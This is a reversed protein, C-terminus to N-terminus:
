WEYCIEEDYVYEKSKGHFGLLHNKFKFNTKYWKGCLHCEHRVLQRNKNIKSPTMKSASDKYTKGTQKHFLRLNVNKM